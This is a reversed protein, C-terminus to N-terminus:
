VLDSAVKRCAVRLKAEGTLHHPNEGQETLYELMDERSMAEFQDHETEDVVPKKAKEGFIVDSDTVDASNKVIYGNVHEPNDSVVKVTEAFM